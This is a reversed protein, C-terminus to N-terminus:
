TKVAKAAVFSINQRRDEAFYLSAAKSSDRPFCLLRAAYCPVAQLVSISDDTMM